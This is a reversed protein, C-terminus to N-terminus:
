WYRHFGDDKIGLFSAIDKHRAVNFLGKHLGYFKQFRERASLNVLDGGHLARARENAARVKEVLLGVEAFGARLGMLDALGIELLVSDELLEISASAPEGAFFGPYAFVFDSAFFFWSVRCSFCGEAHTVEKASGSHIFWVVQSRKGREVLVSGKKLERLVVLERLAMGLGVSLPAHGNLQVMFHLFAIQSLM